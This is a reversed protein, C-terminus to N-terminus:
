REISQNHKYEDCISSGGINFGDKKCVAPKYQEKKDYFFCDSCKPATKKFGRKARIEAKTEKAM